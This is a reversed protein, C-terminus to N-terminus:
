IDFPRYEKFVNILEKVQRNYEEPHEQLYKMTFAQIKKDMDPFDEPAM